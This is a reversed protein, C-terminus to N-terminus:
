WTQVAAETTGPKWTGVLAFGCCFQPAQETVNGPRYDYFEGTVPEDSFALELHGYDGSPPLGGATTVSAALLLYLLRMTNGWDRDHIPKLIGQSDILTGDDGASGWQALRPGPRRAM